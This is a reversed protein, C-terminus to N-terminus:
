NKNFEYLLRGIKIINLIQQYLNYVILNIKNDESSVIATECTVVANVKFNIAYQEIVAGM